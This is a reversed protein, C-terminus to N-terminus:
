LGRQNKRGDRWAQIVSGLSKFKKVVEIKDGGLVVECRVVAEVSM